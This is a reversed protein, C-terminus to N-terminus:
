KKVFDHIQFSDPMFLMMSRRPGLLERTSHGAGTLDEAFLADGPGFVRSGGGSAIIEAAGFLTVVMQRRPPNHFEQDSDLGAERFLFGDCGLPPTKMSRLAGFAFPNMTLELDEFHSKQDEGTYLRVIRTVNVTM